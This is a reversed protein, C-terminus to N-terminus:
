LHGGALYFVNLWNQLYHNRYNHFESCFKLYETVEARYLDTNLYPKYYTKM